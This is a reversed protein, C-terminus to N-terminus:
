NIKLFFFSGPTIACVKLGLVRSASAPLNRFQLGAQDVFHTRPVVLAICLFGTESFWFFFFFFFIHKAHSPQKRVTLAWKGCLWIMHSAQIMIIGWQGWLVITIYLDAIKSVVCNVSYIQLASKSDCHPFARVAMSSKRFIRLYISFISERLNNESRWVPTSTSQWFVCFCVGVCEYM